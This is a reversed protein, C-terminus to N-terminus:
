TTCTLLKNMMKHFKQDTKQQNRQQINLGAKKKNKHQIFSDESESSTETQHSNRKIKKNTSKISQSM